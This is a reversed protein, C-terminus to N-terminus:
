LNHVSIAKAWESFRALEIPGRYRTFFLVQTRQRLKRLVDLTAIARDYDFQVLLDDFIVPM